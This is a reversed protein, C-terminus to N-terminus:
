SQIKGEGKGVFAGKQITHGQRFQMKVRIEGNGAVSVVEAPITQDPHLNFEEIEEKTPKYKVEQGMEIPKEPQKKQAAAKAIPKKAAAKKTKTKAM